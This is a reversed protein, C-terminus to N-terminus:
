PSHQERARGRHNFVTKINYILGVSVLVRVFWLCLRMKRVGLRVLWLDHRCVSCEFLGGFLLSHRGFCAFACVFRASAVPLNAFVGFIMAWYAFTGFVFRRWRIRKCVMNGFLRGFCGFGCVLHSRVDKFLMCRGKGCRPDTLVLGRRSGFACLCLVQSFLSSCLRNCISVMTKDIFVILM